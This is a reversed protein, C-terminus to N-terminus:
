RSAGSRRRRDLRGRASRATRRSPRWRRPRRCATARSSRARRVAGQLGQHVEVPCRPAAPRRRGAPERRHARRRRRRRARRAPGLVDDARRRLVHGEGQRMLALAASPRSARCCCSPAASRSAPTRAARDPRVLPVAAARWTAHRPRGRRRRVPRDGTLANDRMNRHALEAGKPQGTTGCTYLIVATDDEDTACRRSRRAAARGHAAGCRRPARSRRRRRGPRRHDPLLARLGDAQEFGAYGEQAWRCSRRHGRLLLLAKADSDDLHYAVERGKLLVNLPVVDRRGQPDRLLRDPLVAPEPLSLAVKDGPEIGARSWCTRSRTPPPTRGPRLDAPHRRPRGRRPRPLTRASDELLTSLNYM